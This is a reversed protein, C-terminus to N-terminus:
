RKQTEQRQQQKATLFRFARKGTEYLQVYKEYSFIWVLGEHWRGFDIKNDVNKNVTVQEQQAQDQQQQQWSFGAAKVVSPVNVSVAIVLFLMFVIRFYHRHRM